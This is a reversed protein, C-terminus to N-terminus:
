ENKGRKPTKEHFKPPTQLAPARFHVRKSNEPQRAFGGRGKQQRPKVRCGSLGFTPPNKSLTAALIQRSAPPRTVFAMNRSRSMTNGLAASLRRNSTTASPSGSKQPAWTQQQCWEPTHGACLRCGWECHQLHLPTASLRGRWRLARM